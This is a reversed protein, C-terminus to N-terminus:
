NIKKIKSAGSDDNEVRSPSGRYEVESAGSSKVILENLVNIRSKSAGSSNIHYEGVVFDLAELSGAGKLRIDHSGAQGMLEIESAGSSSTKLNAANMDLMVKSSGTLDLEFDKVNLKGESMIEMSGSVEIGEYNKSSLYVTIPGSDCFNGEMRILLTNGKLRTQIEKQINDDAVIRINSISDQKLVIRFAGSTEIRTFPGPNSEKSVQNGSGNICDFGNCSALLMVSYLISGRLALTIIKM